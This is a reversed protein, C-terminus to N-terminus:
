NQPAANASPYPGLDRCQNHDRPRRRFDQHRALWTAQQESTVQYVRREYFGAAAGFVLAARAEV